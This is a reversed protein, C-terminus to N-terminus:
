EAAAKRNKVTTILAKVIAAGRPSRIASGAPAVQSVVEMAKEVSFMRLMGLTREPFRLMVEKYIRQPDWRAQLAEEVNRIIMDLQENDPTADTPWTFNPVRATGTAAPPAAAAAPAPPELDVAAVTGKLLKREKRDGFGVFKDVLFETKDVLKDVSNALSRKLVDGEKEDKDNGGLLANRLEELRLLGAIPDESSKKEAVKELAAAITKQGEQLAAMTTRNSEQVTSIIAKLDESRRLEDARRAEATIKMQELEKEHQLKRDERDRDRAEKAEDAALRAADARSTADLKLQELRLEHAQQNAIKAEERAMTVAPDMVPVRASLVSNMMAKTDDQSRKLMDAMTSLMLNASDDKPKEAVVAPADVIPRAGAVGAALDFAGETLPPGDIPPIDSMWTRTRAQNDPDPGIIEIKYKGGGHVRQIDDIEPPEPYATLFLGKGPAGTKHKGVWFPESRYLRCKYAGDGLAIKKKLVDLEHALLVREDERRQDVAERASRSRPARPADAVTPLNDSGDGTAMSM